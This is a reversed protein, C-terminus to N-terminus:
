PQPPMDDPLDPGNRLMEQREQAKEKDFEKLFEHPKDSGKKSRGHFGKSFGDALKARDERSLQAALEKTVEIRKKGMEAFMSHMKEAAAEFAQADFEEATLISKIEKKASRMERMRDRGERFANQMTKAVIHRGEPSMDRAVKEVPDYGKFKHIAEGAAWGILLVNLIVSLTFIIKMKKSM